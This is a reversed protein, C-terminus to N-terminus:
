LAMDGTTIRAHLDQVLLLRQRSPLAKRTGAQCRLQRQIEQALIGYIFRMNRLTFRLMRTDIVQKADRSAIAIDLQKEDECLIISRYETGMDLGQRNGQSFSMLLMLLLLMLLMLSMLLLLSIAVIIKIRWCSRCCVESGCCTLIVDRAGTSARTPLRLGNLFTTPSFCSRM